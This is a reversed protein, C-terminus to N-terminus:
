RKINAVMEPNNSAARVDRDFANVDHKAAIDEALQMFKGAETVDGDAAAKAALKLFTDYGGLINDKNLIDMVESMKAPDKYIDPFAKALLDEVIHPTAIRSNAHQVVSDAAGASSFKPVPSITFYDSLNQAAEKTGSLDVSGRENSLFGAAVPQSPDSIHKELSEKPVHETIQEVPSKAEKGRGPVDIGQSGWLGESHLSTKQDEPLKDYLDPHNEKLWAAAEERSLMTKGDLTFGRTEEPADKVIDTHRQGPEGVKIEEGVKVAPRLEVAGKKAVEQAKEAEAAKEAAEVSPTEGVSMRKVDDPTVVDALGTVDAIPINVTKDGNIVAEHYAAPDSLAADPTTEAREVLEKVHVIEVTVHTMGATVDAVHDKHVQPSHKRTESKKATEVAHDIVAANVASKTPHEGTYFKGMREAVAFPLADAFISAVGAIQEIAAPADFMANGASKVALYTLEGPAGLAADGAAVMAAGRMNTPEPNILDKIPKLTASRREMNRGFNERSVDGQAVSDVVSGLFSGADAPLTAVMDVTHRVFDGVGALESFVKETRSMEEHDAVKAVEPNELHRATVPAATQLAHYDAIKRRLDDASAKRPAPNALAAPYGASKAAAVNQGYMKADTDVSLVASRTLASKQRASEESMLGNTIDDFGM